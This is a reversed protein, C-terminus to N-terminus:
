SATARPQACATYWARHWTSSRQRVQQGWAEVPESSPRRLTLDRASCPDRWAQESGRKVCLCASRPQLQEQMKSVPRPPYISLITSEHFPSQQAPLGPGSCEPVLSCSCGPHSTPQTAPGLLVARALRCARPAGPVAAGSSTHQNSAASLAPRYGVGAQLQVRPSPISYTLRHCSLFAGPSEAGEECWGSLLRMNLLESTVEFAPGALTAYLDAHSGPSAETDWGLACCPGARAGAHTLARPGPSLLSGLSYAATHQQCVDARTCAPM